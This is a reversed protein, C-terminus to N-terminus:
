VEDSSFGFKSSEFTMQHSGDTTLPVHDQDTALCANSLCEQDLPKQSERGFRV